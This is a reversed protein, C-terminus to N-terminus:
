MTSRCCRIPLFKSICPRRRVVMRPDRPPTGPFLPMLRKTTPPNVAGTNNDNVPLGHVLQTNFRTMIHVGRPNHNMAAHWERPRQYGSFRMRCKLARRVKDVNAISRAFRWLMKRYAAILRRLHLVGCRLRLFTAQMLLTHRNGLPFVNRHCNSSPVDVVSRFVIAFLRLFISFAITCACLREDM